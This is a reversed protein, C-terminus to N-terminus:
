TCTHSQHFSLSLVLLYMLQPKRAYLAALFGRRMQASRTINRLMLWRRREKGGKNWWILKLALRIGCFSTRPLIDMVGDRTLFSLSRMAFCQIISPRVFTSPAFYNCPQIRISSSFTSCTSPKAYLGFCRLAIATGPPAPSSELCLPGSIHPCRFIKFGPNSHKTSAYRKSSMMQQVTLVTGPASEPQPHQKLPSASIALPLLPRAPRVPPIQRVQSVSLRRVTTLIKRIMQHIAAPVALQATQHVSQAKTANFSSLMLTLAILLMPQRVTPVSAVMTGTSPYFAAQHGATGPSPATVAGPKNSSMGLAVSQQRPRADAAGKAILAQAADASVAFGKKPDIVPVGRRGKTKPPTHKLDEHVVFDM